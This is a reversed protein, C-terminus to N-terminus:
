STRKSGGAEETRLVESLPRPSTSVPPPLDVTSPEGHPQPAPRPGSGSSGARVISSPSRGRTFSPLFVIQRRYHEQMLLHVAFALGLVALGPLCGFFVASTLTPLLFRGLVVAVILLLLVTV